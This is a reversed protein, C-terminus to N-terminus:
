GGRSGLRSLALLAESRVYWGAQMVTRSATRVVEGASRARVADLMLRRSVNIMWRYARRAALTQAPSNSADVLMKHRVRLHARRYANSQYSQAGAHRRWRLLSEDIYGVPGHRSVRVALDWDDAPVVDPDFGGVADAVRRRVLMTGPTVIWNSHAFETFTTPGDAPGLEVLRGDRFGFRHRLVDVLDDGPPQVGHEDICSALCHAAAWDPNVDLAGVLTELMREDWVDDNDLFGVLDTDPDTHALGANRAAAVGGNVGRVIRM